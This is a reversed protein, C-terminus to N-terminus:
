RTKSECALFSFLLKLVGITVNVSFESCSVGTWWWSDWSLFAERGLGLYYHGINIVELVVTLQRALFYCILAFSLKEAVWCSSSFSAEGIPPAFWTVVEEGWHRISSPTLYQGMAVQGNVASHLIFSPSSTCTQWRRSLRPHLFKPLLKLGQGGRGSWRDSRLISIHTMHCGTFMVHHCQRSCLSFRSSSDSHSAPIWIPVRVWVLSYSLPTLFQEVAYKFCM